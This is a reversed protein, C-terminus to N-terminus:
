GCWARPVPSRSPRWVAVPHTSCQCMPSPYFPSHISAIAATKGSCTQRVHALRCVALKIATGRGMAAFAWINRRKAIQFVSLFYYCLKGSKWHRFELAINTLHIVLKKRSQRFQSHFNCALALLDRASCPSHSRPLLFLAIAGISLQM